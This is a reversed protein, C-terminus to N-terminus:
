FKIKPNIEIFKLRDREIQDLLKVYAQKVNYNIEGLYNIKGRVIEFKIDIPLKSTSQMAGTNLFAEIEYFKYKGSKNVINFLYVNKDGEKFDGNMIGFDVQGRNYLFNTKSNEELKNAFMGSNSESEIQVYNLKYSPAITKRNELSFSGAIMGENAFVSMDTKMLASPRSCNLLFTTAVILLLLHKNKKM